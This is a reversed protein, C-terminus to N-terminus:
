GQGLHVDKFILCGYGTTFFGVFILFPQLLLCVCIAPSELQTNIQEFLSAIVQCLASFAKGCALGGVMDCKLFTACVSVLCCFYLWHAIKESVCM